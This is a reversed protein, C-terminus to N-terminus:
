LGLAKRQTLNKQLTLGGANTLRIDAYTAELASQMLSILDPIIKNEIDQKDNWAWLARTLDNLREQGKFSLSSDGIKSGVFIDRYANTIQANVKQKKSSNRTANLREQWLAERSRKARASGFGMAQKLSEGMSMDDALVTGYNTELFGKGVSQDYAKYLNRIFLPSSKFAVDVLSEGERAAQTGERIATMFVSGPAGAFDAANGGPTLGLLGAIARVQQSGPINGLSIRRQVDINLGAEIIGNEMANILGAGLGAEYLMERMAARMDTKLETGVIPAHEIMWNALEEADDSGPLAFIGGTMVLMLMIRAFAKRGAARQAPTRGKTLLRNMLAFMQGIYTQFLAPVAMYGRMIQPRHTKGYVGFTKKMMTQAILQPTIIGGNNNIEQQVTNDGEFLEYFKQRAEPDQGIRFAAIYGTLRAVAEMTGFPAGIVKKEFNHFANTPNLGEAGVSQGTEQLAMGQRIYTAMDGEGAMGIIAEKLGPDNPLKNFDVFVDGYENTSFSLMALAEAHAKVLEKGAKASNSMQALLPGTFQVNSMVQLMASSLNGGLYWWFGLRRVGAFEQHPDQSYEWWKELAIEMQTDPNNKSRQEKNYLELTQKAKVANGLFRNSGIARGMMYGYQAFARGFDQSHGIVGGAQRRPQFIQDVTTKYSNNAALQDLEVKLEKFITAKPDSLHQSIDIINTVGERYYDKVNDKTLKNIPSVVVGLTGSYASQLKLRAAEAERKSEFHYRGLYYEPNDKVWKDKYIYAGAENPKASITKEKVSENVVTIFNDGFRMLPIYDGQMNEKLTKLEGVLQSIGNAGKIPNGAVDIGLISRIDIAEKDQMLPSLLPRGLAEMESDLNEVLIAAGKVIQELQEESLMEIQLNSLDNPLDPVFDGFISYGKHYNLLQILTRINEAPEGSIKSRKFQDFLYTVGAQTEEFVEALTGDLIITEGPEIQIDSLPDSKYDLPARLIIRGNEDKLFKQKPFMKAILMARDLAQKLVPDKILEHYRIFYRNYASVVGKSYDNMADVAEMVKNFMWNDAAWERIFGAIRSFLSLKEMTMNKNEVTYNKDKNIAKVLGSTRAKKQQRTSQKYQDVPVDGPAPTWQNMSMMNPQRIGYTGDNLTSKFQQPKFAIYSDTPPEKLFIQMEADTLEQSPDIVGTARNAMMAVAKNYIAKHKYEGLNQYVIGDYGKSQILKTINEFEGVVFGNEELMKLASPSLEAKADDILKLERNLERQTIIDKKFLSNLVTAPDWTGFDTLRLPNKINLFGKFTYYDYPSAQKNAIFTDITLQDATFHYGFDRNRDKDFITFPVEQSSDRTDPTTHMVILPAGQSDVIVSPRGGSNFWKFFNKINTITPQKMFLARTKPAFRNINLGSWPMNVIISTANNGTTYIETARDMSKQEAGVIGLDIANFINATANFRNRTLANALAILYQKLRAFAKAIPGGMQYRDTMWEAFADSIAEEIIMDEYSIGRKIEDHSNKPHRERIRYRKIWTDRAATSLADWEAKAFFRNDRLLHMAEHYLTYNTADTTNLNPRLEPTANFAVQVTRSTNLFRGALAQGDDEIWPLLDIKMDLQLRSIIDKLTQLVKPANEAFDEELRPQGAQKAWLEYKRIYTIPESFSFNRAKKEIRKLRTDRTTLKGWETSLVPEENFTMLVENFRVRAKDINSVHTEYMTIMEIVDSSQTQKQLRAIEDLAARRAVPSYTGVIQDDHMIIHAKAKIRNIQKQIAEAKTFESAFILATKQRKLASIEKRELGTIWSWGKYDLLHLLERLQRVRDGVPTDFIGEGLQSQREETSLPEITRQGTTIKEQRERIGKTETEFRVKGELIDNLRRKGRTLASRGIVRTDNILDEIHQQGLPGNYGLENLEDRDENSLFNGDNETYNQLISYREQQWGEKEVADKLENNTLAEYKKYKGELQGGNEDLATKFDLKPGEEFNLDQFFMQFEETNGAGGRRPQGNAVWRDYQEKIYAQDQRQGIIDAVTDNVWEEKVTSLFEDISKDTDTGVWGRRKWTKKNDAWAQKSEKSDLNVDEAEDQDYDFGASNNTNGENVTDNKLKLISNKKKADVFLDGKGNKGELLFYTEGGLNTDGIVTYTAPNNANPNNFSEPTPQQQPGIVGETPSGTVTVTDGVLFGADDWLAENKTIDSNVVPLSIRETGLDLEINASPGVRLASVTGGVVGFPGGGVAGAAAAEGLQKWFNKSNYLESLPRGSEIEQGTQTITEQIAEATAEGASIAGVGKALAKLRDAKTAALITKKIKYPNGSLFSELSKKALPKSTKKFLTSLLAGGAGFAGEAMAYPIGAALAIAANPDDSEDLQNVYTDGAGFGYGATMFGLGALSTAKAATQAMLGGAPNGVLGYTFAQRMASMSGQRAILGAGIAGAGLGGSVLGALVFPLTTVAGEGLKAGVWELFASFEQESEFVQELSNIRPKVTGEADKRWMHATQDLQYQRVAEVAQNQLDEAGFADYITAMAGQGIQKLTDMSSKAGAVLANDNLNDEDLQYVPDLGYKYAYGKEMMSTEFKESKLHNRIDEDTYHAPFQVRPANEFTIYRVDAM